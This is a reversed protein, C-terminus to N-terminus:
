GKLQRGARSGAVENLAKVGASKWFNSRTKGILSIPGIQARERAM